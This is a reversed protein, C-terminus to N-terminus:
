NQSSSSLVEQPLVPRNSPSLLLRQTYYHGPTDLYPGWRVLPLMLFIQFAPVPGLMLSCEHGTQPDLPSWTAAKTQAM